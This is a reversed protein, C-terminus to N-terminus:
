GLYPLQHKPAIKSCSQLASLMDLTAANPCYDRWDQRDQRASDTSERALDLMCHGRSEGLACRGQLHRVLAPESLALEYPDLDLAVMRRRLLDAEDGGYAAVARLESASPAVDRTLYELEGSGCGVSSPIGVSNRSTFCPCVAIGIKEVHCSM